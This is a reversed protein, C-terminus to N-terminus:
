IVSFGLSVIIRKASAVIDGNRNVVVVKNAFDVKCEIGADELAKQIKDKESEKQMGKIMIIHRM